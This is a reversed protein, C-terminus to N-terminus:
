KIDERFRYSSCFFRMLVLNWLVFRKLSFLENNWFRRLSCWV